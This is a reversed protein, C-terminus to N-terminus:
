VHWLGPQVRRARGELEIVNARAQQFPPPSNAKSLTGNVELYISAWLTWTGLISARQDWIGKLTHNTSGSVEFIPYKSGRPPIGLRAQVPYGYSVTDNEETYEPRM